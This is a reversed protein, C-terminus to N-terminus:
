LWRRGNVALNPLLLGAHTPRMFQNPKQKYNRNFKGSDVAGLLLLLNSVTSFVPTKVRSRKPASMRRGGEEKAGLHKWGSKHLPSFAVHM